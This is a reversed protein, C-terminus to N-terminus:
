FSVPADSFKKKWDKHYFNWALLVARCVNDAVMCGWLYTIGLGLESVVFCSLLVRFVWMSITEAFFPIRTDGMGYFGGELILSVAFIPESFAIIRLLNGSLAATGADLTFFSSLFEAFIFLFVCAALMLSGAMFSSAKVVYKMKKFNQEGLCNGALVSAAKGFGVAPIYFFGEVTYAIAHAAMAATGLDAVYSTFVLRGFGTVISSAAAPVGVRLMRSILIFDPVSRITKMSVKDNKYVALCMLLVMYATQMSIKKVTSFDKEGVAKAAYALIGVSMGMIPFKIVFQVQAAVGVIATAGDGLHGVMFLDVYQVMTQLAFELIAPWALKWIVSDVNGPRVYGFGM